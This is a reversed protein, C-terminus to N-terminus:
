LDRIRAWPSEGPKISRLIELCTAYLRCKKGNETVWKLIQSQMSNMSGTKRAVIYIRGGGVLWANEWKRVASVRDEKEGTEVELYCTEGDKSAILDPWFYRNEEIKIKDPKLVVSFGLRTFHDAVRLVLNGQLDTQYAKILGELECPLPNKNTLHTYVWRGKDTIQVVDTPRGRLSYGPDRSLLEAKSCDTVARLTTESAQVGQALLADEIQKVRALGTRGILELVAWGRDFHKSRKWEKLWTTHDSSNVPNRLALLEAEQAKIKERAENLSKEFSVAQNRFEEAQTEAKNARKTQTDLQSKYSEIERNLSETQRTDSSTGVVGLRAKVFHVIETALEESPIEDDMRGKLLQDFQEGALEQGICILQHQVRKVRESEMALLTRNADLATELERIRIQEQSM